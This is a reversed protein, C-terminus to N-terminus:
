FDAQRFSFSGFNQTNRGCHFMLREKDRATLFSSTHSLFGELLLPQSWRKHIKFYFNIFTMLTWSRGHPWSADHSLTHPRPAKERMYVCVCECVRQGLM